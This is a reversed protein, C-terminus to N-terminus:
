EVALPAYGGKTDEGAVNVELLAEVPRGRRTGFESVADALRPSDLAHLLVFHDLHKVKNRQLHGILPGRAAVAEGGVAPQNELAEQVKNEGVDHIGGQWAAEVAEAGHPKTVAIIRVEQGHGGREAAAAIRTRVEAVREDFGLFHM